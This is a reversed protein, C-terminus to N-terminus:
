SAEAYGSESPVGVRDLFHRVYRDQLEPRKGAHM